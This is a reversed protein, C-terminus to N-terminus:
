EVELVRQVGARVGSNATEAKLEYRFKQFTFM